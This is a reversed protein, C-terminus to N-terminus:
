PPRLQRRSQAQKLSLGMESAIQDLKKGQAIAARIQEGEARANVDDELRGRGPGRKAPAVHPPEPEGGVADLILQHRREFDRKVREYDPPRGAVAACYREWSFEEDLRRYLEDAPIM